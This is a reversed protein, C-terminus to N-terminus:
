KQVETLAMNAAKSDENTAKKTTDAHKVTESKM